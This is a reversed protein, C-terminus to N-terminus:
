FRASLGLCINRTLPMTNSSGTDEPDLPSDGKYWTFLNYGTAFFRVNDLFVNKLAKEPIAYSLELTKLRVYSTNKMWFSSTQSNNAGSTVASINPLSASTNEPTWYNLQNEYITGNSLLPFAVRGGLMQTVRSAGQFLFNLGINKFSLGGNIGFFERPVGGDGLPVVDNRDIIGDGNIDRYKIDGPQVESFTQRPSTAIEDYSQFLGLAQYGYRIGRSYGMTELWPYQENVEGTKVITNDTTSYTAGLRYGLKGISSNWSLMMELGKSNMEGINEQVTAVTGLLSTVNSNTMYMDTRTDKFYDVVYNLHDNFMRLNAGINFQKAKEWTLGPNAIIDEIYGNANGMTNGFNYVNGVANLRSRYQFEDVGRQNGVLGYSGRFKLYSVVKSLPKFFEENSVAWGASVAPFFGFRDEPAFKYIGQYSGTFDIYYKHAFNYGAWYGITQFRSPISTQVDYEYQNYFTTAYVSSKGFARDYALQVDLSNRAQSGIDTVTNGLKGDNGTRKLNSSSSFNPVEYYAFAKDRATVSGSYSDMSLLVSANLGKTLVALDQTLKARFSGYVRNFVSYGNRNLLAWPNTALTSGAVIKGDTGVVPSGDQDVYTGNDIYYAPFANAPTTLLANYAAYSDGGPRNQKDNWGYLDLNLLTTKTVDVELNSRLNFRSTGNNTTFQSESETNFMGNQSLYGGNIFYRTHESGGSVSLNHRQVFSNKKFYDDVWNVDPYQEANVGQRNRYQNLYYSTYLSSSPRGDYQMAANYNSAYTLGNVSELLGLPEQNIFQSTFEVSPKGQTGKKTTVYIVGNAGRTGYLSSIVADKFVTISEVEKSTLVGFEREQGDVLVLVGEANTRIGRIWYDASENVTGGSNQVSFFGPVLGSLLNTLNTVPINELERASITYSAGNFDRASLRRYGVDITDSVLADSVSTNRSSVGSTDREQAKSIGPAISLFLIWLGYGAFHKKSM